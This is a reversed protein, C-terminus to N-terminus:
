KIREIMFKRVIFKACEVFPIISISFLLVILWQVFNLSALGFALRLPPVFAVLLILAIGAVFSYNFVKNAFLKTKFISHSTKLNVAHLL